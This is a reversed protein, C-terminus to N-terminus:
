SKCYCSRGESVCEGAPCTGSCVGYDEFYFGCELESVNVTDGNIVVIGESGEGSGGNGSDVVGRGSSVNFDSEREDVESMGERSGIEISEWFFLVGMALVIGVILITMLLQDKRM